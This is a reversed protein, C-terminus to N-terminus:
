HQHDLPIVYIRGNISTCIQRGDPSWRVTNGLAQDSPLDGLNRFGSGDTGSIWLTGQWKKDFGMRHMLQDIPRDNRLSDPDALKWLVQSGGPSLEAMEICARFPLRVIWRRSVLPPQLQLDELAVDTQGDISVEDIFLLMNTSTFGLPYAGKIPLVASRTSDGASWTARPNMREAEIRLWERTQPFWFFFTPGRSGSLKYSRPTGSHDIPAITVTDAGPKQCFDAIAIEKGDRSVSWCVAANTILTQAQTMLKSVEEKESTTGSKLNIM